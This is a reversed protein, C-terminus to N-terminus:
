PEIYPFVSFIIFATAWPMERAPMGTSIKSSRAGM